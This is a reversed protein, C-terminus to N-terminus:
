LLPSREGLAPLLKPWAPGVSLSEKKESNLRADWEITYNKFLHLLTFLPAFNPKKTGIFFGKTL